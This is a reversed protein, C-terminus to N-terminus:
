PNNRVSFRYWPKPNTGKDGWRADAVWAGNPKEKKRTNVTMEWTKLDLTLLNYQLPIGPVQEKTPAGFTGAGVIHIGRTNDYKHFGEIAEHIHGHLCVQFGQVALLEMFADNMAGSGTVPHHWVAIKLWDNGYKGKGKGELLRDMAHRLASM